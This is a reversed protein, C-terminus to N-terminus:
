YSEALSAVASDFATSSQQLFFLLDIFSSCKRVEKVM